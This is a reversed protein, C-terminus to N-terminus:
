RASIVSEAAAASRRPDQQRDRNQQQVVRRSVHRDDNTPDATQEGGATEPIRM